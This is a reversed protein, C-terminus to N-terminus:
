SAIGFKWVVESRIQRATCCQEKSGKSYHPLYIHLATRVLPFPHTVPLLMDICLISQMAYCTRVAGERDTLQGGLALSTASGEGWWLGLEVWKVGQQWSFHRDSLSLPDGMLRASGSKQWDTMWQYGQSRSLPKICDEWQGSWICQTYSMVHQNKCYTWTTALVTIHPAYTRM